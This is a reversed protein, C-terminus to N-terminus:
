SICSPLKVSAVEFTPGYFDRHAHSSMCASELTPLKGYTNERSTKSGIVHAGFRMIM